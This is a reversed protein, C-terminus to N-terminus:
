KRSFAWFILGLILAVGVVGVWIGANFIAGIARCSVLSSLAFAALGIKFRNM